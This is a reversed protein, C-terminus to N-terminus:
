DEWVFHKGCLPMFLLQTEGVQLVDRAKLVPTGRLTAGNLLPLNRSRGREVFFENARADYVVIAHSDRSIHPDSHEGFDLSVEMDRSRGIRNEGDILRFDRGQGAGNLVVLWGTVPWDHDAAPASFIQTKPAAAAAPRVTDAAAVPPAAAVHTKPAAVTRTGAAPAPVDHCYPCRPHASADYYHKAAACLTLSM